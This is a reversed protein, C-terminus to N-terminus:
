RDKRERGMHLLLIVAMSSFLGISVGWYLPLFYIGLSTSIGILFISFLRSPYPRNSKTNSLGLWRWM